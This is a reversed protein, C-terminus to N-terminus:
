EALILHFIFFSFIITVCVSLINAYFAWRFIDKIESKALAVFKPIFLLALINPIVWILNAMKNAQAYIGVNKNNTNGNNKRKKNKM